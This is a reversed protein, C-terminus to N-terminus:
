VLEKIIKNILCQKICFLFFRYINGYTSTMHQSFYRPNKMLDPLDGKMGKPLLPGPIKLLKKFKSKRFIVVTLILLVVTIALGFM